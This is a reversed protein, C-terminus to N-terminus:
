ANETTSPFVSVVMTASHCVSDTPRDLNPHLVPQFAHGPQTTGSGTLIQVIKFAYIRVQRIIRTHIPPHRHATPFAYNLSPTAGHAMLAFPFVNLKTASYSSLQTTLAFQCVDKTCAMLLLTIVEMDQPTPLIPVFITAFGTMLMAMPLRLQVIPYADGTPRIGSCFNAPYSQSLPVIQGVDTCILIPMPITPANVLVLGRPTRDMLRALCQLAFNLVLTLQHKKM